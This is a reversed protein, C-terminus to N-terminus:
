DKYYKRKLHEFFYRARSGNAEKPKHYRTLKAWTLLTDCQSSRLIHFDLSFDIGGIKLLKYAQIRTLNSKKYPYIYGHRGRADALMSLYCERSTGGGIQSQCSYRGDKDIMYLDIGQYGNRAHEIYFYISGSAVQYTNSRKVERRLDTIIFAM